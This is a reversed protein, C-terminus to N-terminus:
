KSARYSRILTLSALPSPQLHTEGLTRSGTFHFRHSNRSTRSSAAGFTPPPSHTTTTLLSTLFIQAAHLATLYPRRRTSPAARMAMAHAPLRLAASRRVPSCASSPACSFCFLAAASSLTIPLASLTVRSSAKRPAHAPLCRPADPLVKGGRQFRSNTPFRFSRSALGRPRPMCLGASLPARQASM